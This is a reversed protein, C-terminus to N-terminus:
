DNQFKKTFRFSKTLEDIRKVIRMSRVTTEEGYLRMVEALEVISVNSSIHVMLNANLRYHLVPLLIEDRFWPSMNEGGLDDLILVTTRKLINIRHELQNTSIAGKLTRILDPVFAFIVDVNLKTLENALGSLLFSKGTSNAGYLYLGKMFKDKHKITKEAYSVVKKHNDDSIIFDKLTAEAIYIDSEFTELNRKIIKTLDQQVKEKTPEYVIQVYPKFKLKPKFSKSDNQDRQLLYQYVVLVEQDNLKLHKTEPDNLIVTKM